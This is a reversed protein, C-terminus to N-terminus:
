KENNMGGEMWKKKLKILGRVHISRVTSYKINLTESIEKLSLDYFYHLIYIQQDEQSLEDLLIKLVERDEISKTFDEFQSNGMWNKEYETTDNFEVYIVNKSKSYYRRAEYTAITFLWTKMKENERLNKLGSLAAVMTNQFIEEMAYNDKRTLTYIYRQLSHSHLRCTEEFLQLVIQSNKM